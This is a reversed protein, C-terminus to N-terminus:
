ESEDKVNLKDLRMTIEDEGEKTRQPKHLIGAVNFKMDDPRFGDDLAERIAKYYISAVTQKWDEIFAEAQARTRFYKHCNSSV